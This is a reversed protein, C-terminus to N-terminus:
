ARRRWPAESARALTSPTAPTAAPAVQGERAFAANGYAAEQLDDRTLTGDEIGRVVFEHAAQAFARRHAPSCFRQAKGALRPEFPCGCWLCARMM